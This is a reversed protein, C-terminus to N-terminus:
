DKLTDGSHTDLNVVNLFLFDFVPERFPGQLDPRLLPGAVGAVRDDGGQLIRDGPRHDLHRGRDLLPHSERLKHRSGLTFIVALDRLDPPILIKIRKHLVALCGPIETERGPM